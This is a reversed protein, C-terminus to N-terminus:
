AGQEDDPNENECETQNKADDRNTAENKEPEESDTGFRATWDRLWGFFRDQPSTECYWRKSQGPLGSIRAVVLFLGFVGLNTYWPLSARYIEVAGVFFYCIAMVTTLLTTTFLLANQVNSRYNAAIWRSYEEALGEEVLHYEYRENLISETVDDANVGIEESTSTYTVASLVTGTFLLVVGFKTFPNLIATTPTENAQVAISIGSVTIGALVVNARFIQMAKEDIDSLTASQKDITERAEERALKARRIRDEDPM